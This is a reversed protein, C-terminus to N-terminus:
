GARILDEVYLIAEEVCMQFRRSMVADPREQLKAAKLVALIEPSALAVTGDLASQWVEESSDSLAEAIFEASNKERREWAVRVLFSRVDPDSEGRFLEALAPVIDAELGLLLAWPAEDAGNRYGEVAARITEIV